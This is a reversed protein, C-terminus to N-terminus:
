KWRHREKRRGGELVCLGPYFAVERFPATEKGVKVRVEFDGFDRENGEYAARMREMFENLTM